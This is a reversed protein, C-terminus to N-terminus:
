AIGSRLSRAIEYLPKAVAQRSATRPTSLQVVTSMGPRGSSRSSPRVSTQRLEYQMACSVSRQVSLTQGCCNNGCRADAATDPRRGAYSERPSLASDDIRPPVGTSLRIAPQDRRSAPHSAPRSTFPEAEAWRLVHRGNDARSRRCRRGGRILRPTPMTAAMMRAARPSRAHGSHHCSDV